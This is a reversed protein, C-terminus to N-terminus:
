EKVFLYNELMKEAKLHLWDAYDEKEIGCIYPNYSGHVIISKESALKRLFDELKMIGSYNSSECFYDYLLPYWSPLYFEVQIGKKQLYNILNEFEQLNDYNLESFGSGLQYVSEKSIMQRVSADNEEVSIFGEKAMVMRGNPLIKAHEGVADDSATTVIRSESPFLADLGESRVRSYMNKISSQFYSVSFLERIKRRNNSSINPEKDSHGVDVMEKEYRAYEAVSVHRGSLADTYFAWPDIGIVIHDPLKGSSEFIGIVEYYDGLYSGSMGGIFPNENIQEWPLYMVRSSGLILLDPAADLSLVLKELLRGEDVDGPSEIINGKSLADVMDGIISTHFLNAPDICYNVGVMSTYDRFSM